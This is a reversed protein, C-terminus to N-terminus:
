LIPKRHLTLVKRRVLVAIMVTIVIFFLTWGLTPIVQSVTTGVRTSTDPTANDDIKWYIKPKFNITVRAVDCDVFYNDPQSAKQTLCRVALTGIQAWTPTGLSVESSWVYSPQNTLNAAVISTTFNTGDLAADFQYTDNSPAGTTKYKVAVTASTIEGLDSSNFGAAHFETNNCSILAGIDNDTYVETPNNVTGVITNSTPYRLASDSNSSINVWWEFRLRDGSNVSIAPASGTTDTEAYSSPIAVSGTTFQPTAEANKFVKVYYTASGGGKYIWTHFTWTGSSITDNAPWGATFFKGGNTNNAPLQYDGTGAFVKSYEASSPEPTRQDMQNDNAEAGRNESHAYFTGVSAYTPQPRYCLSVIAVLSAVLLLSVIKGLLKNTISLM